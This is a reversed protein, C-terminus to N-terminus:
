DVARKKQWDDKELRYFVHRKFHPHTDPVRPHDFDFAPHPTMGIRKMVAISAHNDRVAFSVIEDLKLDEFGHRLLAKAAETAYGEGWHEPLLRWGIEVAPAFAAEFRVPMLGAFGIPSEQDKLCMAAWGFGYEAILPFLGDLLVDAEMRSYQQPFFRMVQPDSFLRHFATRDTNSGTWHRLRLRGTSIEAGARM